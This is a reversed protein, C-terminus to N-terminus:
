KREELKLKMSLEEKDRLVTLKIEDGVDFKQISDSLENKTDLKKGDVELIVDNEKIGAKDAPSHPIVAKANPVHDRVVLAGYDVALKHREKLKKDLMVFRLGIYPKIVRGHEKLDDLDEKAWDIPIAFGINQAGFIVATNIGLVEGEVNILPGGSNGQNIAVDTQIVGRLQETQQGAGLSATIKRSLGSIIGKSVSNTFMGLATGIAIVTEGVEIKSSDGLKVVPLDDNDIKLFAIDNIPDVTVVKAKYEKDSGTTTITYEAEPDAIVHKNTLILGKSDVVFGSGGGIKVAEKEGSEEKSVPPGFPSSFPNFSFGKIKPMHKSIIVSVVAPSVTKVADIISKDENIM